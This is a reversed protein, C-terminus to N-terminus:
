YAKRDKRPGRATVTTSERWKRRNATNRMSLAARGEEKQKAGEVGMVEEDNVFLAAIVPYSGPGYPGPPGISDTLREIHTVGSLIDEPREGEPTLRGCNYPTLVRSTYKRKQTEHSSPTFQYNSSSKENAKPKGQPSLQGYANQPQSTHRGYDSSSPQRSNLLSCTRDHAGRHSRPRRPQRNWHCPRHSPPDTVWCPLHARPDHYHRHLQGDRDKASHGASTAQCYQLASLFPDPTLLPDPGIGRADYVVLGSTKDLSKALSTWSLLGSNAIYIKSLRSACYISM